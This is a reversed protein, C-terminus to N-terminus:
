EPIFQYDAVQNEPKNKSVFFRNVYSFVMGTCGTKNQIPPHLATLEGTKETYFVFANIL